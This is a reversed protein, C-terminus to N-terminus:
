DVIDERAMSRENPFMAEKLLKRARHARVKLSGVSSGTIEAIEEYPVNEIHRLVFVERYNAPLEHLAKEFREMMDREGLEALPDYQSRTDAFVPSGADHELLADLSVTRSRQRERVRDRALNVAIQVIWTGFQSQGRFGGLGRYARVFADHALEEATEPDGTLRMLMAYVREKHRDVLTAFAETEGDQVAQVINADRDVM